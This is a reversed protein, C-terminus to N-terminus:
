KQKEKDVLNWCCPIHLCKKQYETRKEIMPCEECEHEECFKLAEEWTMKSGRNGWIVDNYKPADDDLKLHIM